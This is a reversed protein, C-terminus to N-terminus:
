WFFIKYLFFMVFFKNTPSPSSLQLRRQWVLHFVVRHSSFPLRRPHCGVKMCLMELGWCGGNPQGHSQNLKSDVIQNSQLYLSRRLFIAKSASPFKEFAAWPNTRLFTQCNIVYNRSTLPLTRKIDRFVAPFGALSTKAPRGSTSAENVKGTLM